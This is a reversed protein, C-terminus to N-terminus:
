NTYYYYYYYMHYSVFYCDTKFELKPLRCTREGHQIEPPILKKKKKYVRSLIIVCFLETLLSSCFHAATYSPVRNNLSGTCHVNLTHKINNARPIKAGSIKIAYMPIIITDDDDNSFLDPSRM